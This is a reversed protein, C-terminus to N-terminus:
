LNGTRLAGCRLNRLDFNLTRPDVSMLEIFRLLDFEQSCRLSLIHVYKQHQCASGSADDHGENM